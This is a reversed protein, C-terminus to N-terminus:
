PRGRCRRARTRGGERRAGRPLADLLRNSGTLLRGTQVPSGVKATSARALGALLERSADRWRGTEDLATTRRKLRAQGVRRRRPRPRNRAAEDGYAETASLRRLRSQPRDARMECALVEADRLRAAQWWQPRHNTLRRPRRAPHNSRSRRMARAGRRTARHRRMRGGGDPGAGARESHPVTAGCSPRRCPAIGQIVCPRAARTQPTGVGRNRVADLLQELCIM